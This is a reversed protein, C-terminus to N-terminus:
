GEVTISAKEAQLSAIKADIEKTRDNKLFANVILLLADITKDDIGKWASEHKNLVQIIATIKESRTM